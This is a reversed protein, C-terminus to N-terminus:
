MTTVCRAAKFINNLGKNMIGKGYLNLLPIFPWPAEKFSQQEENRRSSDSQKDKGQGPKMSDVDRQIYGKQEPM